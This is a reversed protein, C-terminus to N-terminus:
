KHASILCKIHNALVDFSNQFHTNNMVVMDVSDRYPLLYNQYAPLVHNEWQYQIQETDMGRDARDRKLRRDYMLDLNAEIYLKLDFLKDLAKDTYIFLGEVILVPAPNFL